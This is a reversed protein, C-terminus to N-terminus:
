EGGNGQSEGKEQTEAKASDKEASKIIQVNKMATRKFVVYDPEDEEAIEFILKVTVAKEKDLKCVVGLNARLLRLDGSEGELQVQWWLRDGQSGRIERRIVGQDEKDKAWLRYDSKYQLYGKEGDEGPVVLSDLEGYLRSWPMNDLDIGMPWYSRGSKGVLRVQPGKFRVARDEDRAESSVRLSLVGRLKNDLGPELSDEQSPEWQAWVIADGPAAQRSQFNVGNRNAWAELLLDPHVEGFSQKGRMSGKSLAKLLALTFDDMYPFPAAQLEMQEDYRNYSAWSSQAPQSVTLRIKNSSRRFARETVSAPRKKTTADLGYFDQYGSSFLGPGFPLLQWAILVVGAIIMGTFFGLIGGGIREIQWPFTMKGLVVNDAIARLCLLSVVFLGVLAVAQGYSNGTAEGAQMKAQSGVVMLFVVAGIGVALRIYRNMTMISKALGALVILGGFLVVFLLHDQHWTGLSWGLPECYNWAIAASILTLVFMVLASFMGQYAQHLAVSSVVILSGVVIPFVISM